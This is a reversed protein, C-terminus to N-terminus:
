CWQSTRRAAAAVGFREISGIRGAAADEEAAGGEADRETSVSANGTGVEGFAEGDDEPVADTEADAEAESDPAADTLASGDEAAAVGAEGAFPNAVGVVAVPPFFITRKFFDLLALAAAVGTDGAAAAVGALGFAAAPEDGLAAAELGFFAAALLGFAAAEEAAVAAMGVLGTAAIERLSKGM